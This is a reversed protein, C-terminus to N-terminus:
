GWYKGYWRHPNRTIASSTLGNDMIDNIETSSLARDFIAIECIYADFYGQAEGSSLDTRGIRCTASGAYIGSSYTKPNDAGNSDLSGNYYVRIDTDNYVGAIHVWTGNEPISTAGTATTFTSGDNSLAFRIVDTTSWANGVILWYQANSSAYKGFLTEDYSNTDGQRAVWGVISISQNAGSIDTSLGDAHEFWEFGASKVYRSNTAYAAPTSGTTNIGSPSSQVTFDSGAGSVDSEAAQGTSTMLWAGQCNADQTYDTNFIHRYKKVLDVTRM